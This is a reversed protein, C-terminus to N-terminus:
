YRCIKTRMRGTRMDVIGLDIAKVRVVKRKATIQLAHHEPDAIFYISVENARPKMSRFVSCSASLNKPEIDASM